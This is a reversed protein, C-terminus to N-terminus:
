FEQYENFQFEKRGPYGEFEDYLLLPAMNPHGAFEVGFLDHVEREYWDAAPWLPTVSSIVPSEYQVICKIVLTQEKSLSQLFYVLEFYTEYDVCTLCLLMELDFIEDKKLSTCVQVIHESSILLQPIDRMAGLEPDFETLADKASEMFAMSEASLYSYDPQTEEESTPNHADAM